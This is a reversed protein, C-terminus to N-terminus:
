YARTLRDSANIKNVLRTAIVELIIVCQAHATCTFTSGWFMALLQMLNVSDIDRRRVNQGSLTTLRLMQQSSTQGDTQRDTTRTYSMRRQEHDM